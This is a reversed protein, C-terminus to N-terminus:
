ALHLTTTLNQAFEIVVVTAATTKNFGEAYQYQQSRVHKAGEVVLHGFNGEVRNNIVMIEHAPHFHLFATANTPKNLADEITLSTNTWSFTRQHTIGLKRYGNHSASIRNNTEELVKCRARQGVRFGGWVDSQNQGNVMVTNHANTSREATRQANKEYTSIGTDVILPANNHHLIFNLTDSHAHGPIYDPGIHGVDVLLEMNGSTIKRYGSENLPKNGARVSLRDAYRNLATASPAIGEVSDNVNPSDGNAFQMLSMWGLMHQAAGRLQKLLATSKLSDNNELLNIGDLERCLMLQHYMPSLEFHAGDPLVQENLQPVLIASAGKMLEPDEFYVAAFLLAFGNELLHNGLLHYELRKLLTHTDVWIVANLTEDNLEHLTCFKVWNMIRLSTPYPERADNLTGYQQAFDSMLQQGTARDMDEQMLFDFYCLNYTWLKGHRQLNWNITDTFQQPVNLFNFALKGVYTRHAPIPNLLRLKQAKVSSPLPRLAPLSPGLLLKHRLQHLLQSAKLHRLTHYYRLLTSM